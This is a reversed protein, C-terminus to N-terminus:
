EGRFSVWEPRYYVVSRHHGASKVLRAVVLGRELLPLSYNQVASREVGLQNAVDTQTVRGTRKVIDAMEVSKPHLPRDATATPAEGAAKPPRGRRKAPAGTAEATATATAPQGSLAQIVAGSFQTMGIALKDIMSTLRDIKEESSETQAQNMTATNEAM